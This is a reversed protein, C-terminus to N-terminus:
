RSAHARTARAKTACRYWCRTRRGAALRRDRRSGRSRLFGSRGSASTSSPPTSSPMVRELRGLFVGGVRSPTDRRAIQLEALRGGATLAMLFASRCCRSLDAPRPRSVAIGDAAHGGDRLAAPRRVNSYSGSLFAVFRPPAARSPMAAPRAAGNTRKPHLGRDGAPELRKFRVVTEVLRTRVTARGARRRRRRGARSAPPGVVPRPLARAEAETEAKPLIRRGLVVVVSDAALVVM